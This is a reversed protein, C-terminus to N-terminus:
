RGLSLSGVPLGAVLDTPQAGGVLGQLATRLNTLASIQGASLGSQGALSTLATAIPDLFATPLQGSGSGAQTLVAVNGLLTATASDVGASGSLGSLLTQVPALAAVNADAGGNLSTALNELTTQQSTGLLTNLASTLGTVVGFIPDLIGGLLSQQSVTQASASQAALTAPGAVLLSTAAAAGLLHKRSIPMLDAM